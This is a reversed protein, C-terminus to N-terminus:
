NASSVMARAAEVAWARDIRLDESPKLTAAQKDYGALPSQLVQEDDLLLWTLTGSDRNVREFLLISNVDDGRSALLLVKLVEIVRDDFGAELIKVKEILANKSPVLRRTGVPGVNQLAAEGLAENGPTVVCFYARDPDYFSLNTELATRKGCQACSLINFDGALLRAVLEPKERTNISQTIAVDAAHGCAPCQVHVTGSIIM